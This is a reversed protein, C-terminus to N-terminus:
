NSKYHKIFLARNENYGNMTNVIGCDHCFWPKDQKPVVVKYGNSIFEMCQSLDYFHWGTFIDERWPIDYQTIIILGDVGEVEEYENEVDRFSLLSMRGTHSEYVKGYIEPSEWWVGSIPIIKPGCAGIVGITEDAFVNLIDQIFNKNVIFLDQHLYVKYKADSKEIASNYVSTLGTGGRIPIIDLSFGEPVTLNEIYFKCESFSLEDNVAIIFSIKNKNM